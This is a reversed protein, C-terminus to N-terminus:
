LIIPKAPHFDNLIPADNIARKLMRFALETDRTWQCKVLEPARLTEANNLLDSIPTTVKAYQRILQWLVNTFRLLVQLDRVSDSTPSDEITSISDWEMAIGDPRNVLAILGVETVRFYCKEAKAYLGLERLWGPVKRVQDNHEEEDTLYILIDDLYCVAFHDIFPRLCDDVYAQFTAPANTLGFPLVQYDCQGSCTRCATKYADDDTIRILHHANGHDLKTFIQARRLRDPMESILQLPYRNKGM